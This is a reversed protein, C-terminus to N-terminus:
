EADEEITEANLYDSEFKWTGKLTKGPYVNAYIALSNQMNSMDTGAAYGTKSAPIDIAKIVATESSNYDVGKFKGNVKETQFAYSKLINVTFGGTTSNNSDVTPVVDIYVTAVNNNVSAKTTGTVTGTILIEDEKAGNGAYNKGSKSDTGGTGFNWAQTDSVNSFKSVYGWLTGSSDEARLGVVFFDRNKTTEDVHLDFIFGMVGNGKLNSVDNFNIQVLGGAHKFTTTDYGRQTEATSNTYGTEEKDGVRYNNNSGQVINFPDDDDANKCSAFGFVMALVAAGFLVKTMKM